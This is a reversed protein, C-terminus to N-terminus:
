FILNDDFLHYLVRSSLRAVLFWCLSLQLQLFSRAVLGSILLTTYHNDVSLTSSCPGAKFTIWVCPLWLKTSLESLTFSQRCHLGALESCVQAPFVFATTQHYWVGHHCCTNCFIILIFSGFIGADCLDLHGFTNCPKFRVSCMQPIFTFLLPACDKRCLGASFVTGPSHCFIDEFLYAVTVDVMRFLIWHRM